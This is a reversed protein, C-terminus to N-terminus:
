PQAGAIQFGASKWCSLGCSLSYVKKFGQFALYKAAMLSRPGSQCYILIPKDRFPDLKAAVTKFQNMPVLHANPIGGFRQLEQPNRVDIIVLDKEKEMLNKAQGADLTTVDQRAPAAAATSEEVKSAAPQQEKCSFVCLALLALVFTIALKKMTKDM